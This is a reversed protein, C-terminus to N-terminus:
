VLLIKRETFVSECQSIHERSMWKKMAPDAEIRCAQGTKSCKDPWLPNYPLLAAKKQGNKQLFDAISTLNQKTDTIGPVLPTRPLLSFNSNKGAKALRAFNELIMQNETGCHLRHLAPDLIKIDFYIEDLWPLALKEFKEWAFLGCTELLTNIGEQKLRKLLGGLFETFLTPEGGSLTVGGKSADFFPKDRIVKRVIEDVGLAKGAMDLAGSPCEKVCLGCLNCTERDVFFPNDKSVAKEPCIERCHGCDVCLNADFSIECEVKKSEPNHCWVCDLPCGKFFVVSRIGPGDDQSNGKIDLIFPSKM